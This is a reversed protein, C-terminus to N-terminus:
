QLFANPNRYIGSSLIHNSEMIVVATKNRVAARARALGEEVKDSARKQMKLEM